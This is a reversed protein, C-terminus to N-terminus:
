WDEDEKPKDEEAKRRGKGDLAVMGVEEGAELAVKGKGAGPTNVFDRLRERVIEMGQTTMANGVRLMPGALNLTYIVYGLAALILLFMFYIPSRLVAWIENWGLALLLAYFYVPISAVSSITSRKAEVYLADATRKFRTTLEVQKAESLIIFEDPAPFPATADDEGNLHADAPTPGIFDALPPPASTSTLKIESM